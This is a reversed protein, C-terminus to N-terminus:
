SGAAVREAEVLAALARVVIADKPAMQRALDIFERALVLEGAKGTEHLALHCVGVNCVLGPDVPDLRYASMSARLAAPLDGASLCVTALSRLAELDRHDAVLAAEFLSRARELQGVKRLLTGGVTLVFPPSPVNAAAAADRAVLLTDVTALAVASDVIEDSILEQVHAMAVALDAAPKLRLKESRAEVREAALERAVERYADRRTGDSADVEVGLCTEVRTWAACAAAVRGLREQVRALARWSPAHRDDVNLAQEVHKLAQRLRQQRGADDLVAADRNYRELATQGANFWAVALTADADAADEYHKQAADLRGERAAVYGKMCRQEAAKRGTQGLAKKLWRM